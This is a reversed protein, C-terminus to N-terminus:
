RSKYQSRGTCQLGTYGTIVITNIVPHGLLCLFQTVFYLDNKNLILMYNRMETM